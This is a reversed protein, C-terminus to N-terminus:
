WRVRPRERSSRTSTAVSSSSKRLGPGPPRNMTGVRRADGGGGAGPAPRRHAAQRGRRRRSHVRAASRRPPLLAELSCERADPCPPKAYASCPPSIRGVSRLDAPYRLPSRVSSQLGARNTLQSGHEADPSRGAGAAGSPLSGPGTRPM